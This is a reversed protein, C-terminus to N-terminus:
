KYKDAFNNIKNIFDGMILSKPSLNIFLVGKYWREKIQKFAKEIVMLDMTNILGRAEAIEIFEFASVIKGDQNIRMLLEHIVIDNDKSSPKIPQFYPVIQDNEIAKILLASKRSKKKLIESVDEQGPLKISNKGEEKAQYMMSDAIVFMDKSVNYTTSLCLNWYFNYYWSKNWRSCNTKEKLEKQFEIQLLWQVMEDCEPLILTFEDGGYRAAIDENKKKKLIDAFNTFNIGLHMDLITM